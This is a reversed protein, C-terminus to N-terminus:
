KKHMILLKDKYNGEPTILSILYLGNSLNSVSLPRSLDEPNKIQRNVLVIGQADLIELVLPFAPKLNQLNLWVLEDAPNPHLSIRGSVPMGPESLGVAFGDQLKLLRGASGYAFGNLNSFVKLRNIYPYTGAYNWNQGGDQTFYLNSGASNQCLVYGTLAGSFAIDAITETSDATFILEPQNSTTYFRYVRAPSEATVVFGLTNSLMQGRAISPLELSNYTWSHGKDTSMYYGGHQTSGGGGFIFGTDATIFQMNAMTDLPINVESWNQAMDGSKFFRARGLQKESYRSDKKWVILAKRGFLYADGSGFVNMDLVYIPMESVIKTWNTGDDSSHYINTLMESGAVSKGNSFEGVVLLQSTQPIKIVKKLLDNPSSFRPTWNLGNDSSRMLYNTNVHLGENEDWALDLISRGFNGEYPQFTSGNKQMLLNMSGFDPDNDTCDNSTYAFAQNENIYWVTNVRYNANYGSTIWGGINDTHWTEGSNTSYFLPLVAKSFANLYGYCFIIGGQNKKLHEIYESQNLYIVSWNAGNDTSRLIRAEGYSDTYGAAIWCNNSAYLIAHWSRSQNESYINQFSIGGDTSKRIHLDSVATIEIESSADFDNWDVTQQVINWSAGGDTSKAFAKQGNESAILALGTISSPFIIKIFKSPSIDCLTNWTNGGDNSVFLSTEGMILIKSPNIFVMQSLRQSTFPTITQWTQGADSTHFVSGHTGVMWGHQADSFFIDFFDEGSPRPNLWTANQAMTAAQFILWAFLIFITKKMITSNKPKHNENKELKV